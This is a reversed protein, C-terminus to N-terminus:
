ENEHKGTRTARAMNAQWHNSPRETARDSLRENAKAQGSQSTRMRVHSHERTQEWDSARGLGDSAQDVHYGALDLHFRILERIAPDDEIVLALPRSDTTIPM